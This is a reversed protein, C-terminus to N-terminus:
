HKNTESVEWYGGKDPGIRKLIGQKKLKELDRKITKSDVNVVGALEEITVSKNTKIKKIIILLRNEPVNDPVNDPVNESYGRFSTSFVKVRFGSIMLQFEPQPLGYDKFDKLVRKIGSGYKEILGSAKFIEAILKNRPQSVYDNNLLQELVIDSPM